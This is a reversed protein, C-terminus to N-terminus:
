NLALLDSVDDVLTNLFHTDREDNIRLERENYFRQVLELLEMDRNKLEQKNKLERSFEDEYIMKSEYQKKIKSIEFDDNNIIGKLYNIIETIEELSYNGKGKKIQNIKQKFSRKKNASASLKKVGLNGYKDERSKQEANAITKNDPRSYCNTFGKVIKGCENVKAQSSKCIYLLNHNSLIDNYRVVTNKSVGTTKALYNISKDGVEAHSLNCMTSVVGCFYILIKEPCQHKINMITRVENLTIWIFYKFKDSACNTEFYINDLLLKMGRKNSSLVTIYKKEILESLGQKIINELAKNSKIRDTLIYNLYDYNIYDEKTRYFRLAIYVLKATVSLKDSLMLEKDLFLKRESDNIKLNNREIVDVLRIHKNKM